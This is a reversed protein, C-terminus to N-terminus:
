GKTPQTTPAPLKRNRYWSWAASAGAIVLGSAIQTLGAELSNVAEADAIGNATVIGGLWALGNRILSGLQKQLITKM